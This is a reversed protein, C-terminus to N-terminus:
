RMEYSSNYCSVCYEKCADFLQSVSCGACKLFWKKESQSLDCNNNLKVSCINLAHLLLSQYQCISVKGKIVVLNCFRTWLSMRVARQLPGDIKRPARIINDGMQRHVNLIVLYCAYILHTWSIRTGNKWTCIILNM